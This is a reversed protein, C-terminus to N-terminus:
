KERDGLLMLMTFVEDDSLYQNTETDLLVPTDGVRKIMFRDGFEQELRWRANFLRGAAQEAARRRDKESQMKVDPVRM